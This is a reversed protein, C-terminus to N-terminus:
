QSNSDKKVETVIIELPGSEGTVTENPTPHQYSSGPVAQAKIKGKETVKTSSSLDLVGGSGNQSEPRKMLIPPSYPFTIEYGSMVTNLDENRPLFVQFIFEQYYLMFNHQPVKNNGGKRRFLYVHFKSRTSHTHFHVHKAFSDFYPNLEDSILYRILLTYNYLDAEKLTAVGMKLLLKYIYLPIYPKKDYTFVAQEGEFMVASSDESMIKLTSLSIGEAVIKGDTSKFKPIKSGQSLNIISRSIGLYDALATEYNSFINNCNDCEFDSLRTRNGLLKPYTHAKSDFTTEPYKKGCYRCVRDKRPKLTNNPRHSPMTFASELKFLNLFDVLQSTVADYTYIPISTMKVTLV